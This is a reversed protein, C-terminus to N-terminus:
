LKSPGYFNARVDGPQVRMASGGSVKVSLATSSSLDQQAKVEAEFKDRQKNTAVVRPDHLLGMGLM